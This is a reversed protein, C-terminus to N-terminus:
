AKIINEASLLFCFFNIEHDVVFNDRYTYEGLELLLTKKKIENINSGYLSDFLSKYLLQYDSDFENECDIIFKRLDLVNEKSFIKKLLNDSFSESINLDELCLKGSISFKQLDNVMRRMDPYRDKVFSALQSLNEQFEVNEAKLIHICRQLSGKLDPKLNFIVCRSRIPEIIKNFYNATLIFRTSASFEEMVNRLIRMASGSLGDCEDLLIVKKQGDFSRTQAFTIVKNRITDIGSEDSANIYLYQCKLVDNILVKATTTKGTGAKGYFLLHPIDDSINKLHERSDESLVIDSITKPRYKECWLDNYHNM